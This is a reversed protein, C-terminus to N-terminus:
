NYEKGDEEKEDEDDDNDDDKDDLKGKSPEVEGQKVSTLGYM